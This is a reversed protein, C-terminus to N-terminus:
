QSSAEDAEMIDKYNLVFGIMDLKGKTKYLEEMSDITQLDGISVSLEYLESLFFDWGRTHLMEAIAERYEEDSVRELDIYDDM